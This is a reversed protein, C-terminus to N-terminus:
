KFRTIFCRSYPPWPHVEIIPKILYNHWIKRAKDIAERRTASFETEYGLSKTVWKEDPNFSSGYYVHIRSPDM